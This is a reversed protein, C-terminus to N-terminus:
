WCSNWTSMSESASQRTPSSKRLVLLHSGKNELSRSRKSELFWTGKYLRLSLWSTCLKEPSLSPSLRLAPQVHWSKALGFLLLAVVRSPFARELQAPPVFLYKSFRQPGWRGKWSRLLFHLSWLQFCRPHLLQLTRFCQMPYRQIRELALTSGCLKRVVSALFCIFNILRIFELVNYVWDTLRYGDFHPMLESFKHLFECINKGFFWHSM